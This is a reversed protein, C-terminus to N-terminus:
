ALARRLRECTLQALFEANQDCDWAIGDSEDLAPGEVHCHHDVSDVGPLACGHVLLWILM